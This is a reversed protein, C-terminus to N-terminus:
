GRSLPHLDLVMREARSMDVHTYIETTSIKEHGLLTQIARLDAGNALLHTAFAHRLVHPTVDQPRPLGAAVATEQIDRYAASRNTPKSGDRVSHFLWKPSAVGLEKAMKRWRHMAEVARHGLPVIREKDGKGKIILARGNGTLVNATLKVAESIRMGSSYLTEFLAARRAYGALRYLSLSGDDAMAHATNLFREVEGVSLVMPIKGERKAPEIQSAPNGTAYGELYIFNHLTRVVARRLNITNEAYGKEDLYGMYAVIDDHSVDSLSKSQSGLWGLYCDLAFRYTELSSAAADRTALDELWNEALLENKTM